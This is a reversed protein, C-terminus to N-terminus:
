AYSFLDIAIVNIKSLVYQLETVPLNPGLIIVRFGHNMLALSLLLLGFEHYDGPLGAVVIYDGQNIRNQHHFRAGLKNRLYSSFFHEEAVAGERIDWDEGLNKLLPLILNETVMDIPYLGTVEHYANDLSQEDFDIIAQRINQIYQQWVSEIDKESILYPEEKEVVDAAVSIPLGQDILEKIAQIKKVDSLSYLRHGTESRSPKVFEYRREWARLTMAKIGTLEAVVSIPYFNDLTEM